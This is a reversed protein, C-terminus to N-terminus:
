ARAPGARKLKETIADLAANIQAIKRTAAARLEPPARDPHHAAAGQRRARGLAEATLPGSLGLERAIEAEEPTLALSPELPPAKAAREAHDLREDLLRREIGRLNLREGEPAALLAFADPARRVISLLRKFIEVSRATGNEYVFGSAQGPKQHGAGQRKLALVCRLAHTLQEALEDNHLHSANIFVDIARVHRADAGELCAKAFSEHLDARITPQKALHTYKAFVEAGTAADAYLEDGSTLFGCFFGLARIIEHDATTEPKKAAPPSKPHPKTQQPAVAEVAPWHEPKRGFPFIRRVGKLFSGSAPKKRLLIPSSL